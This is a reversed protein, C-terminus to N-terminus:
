VEGDEARGMHESVGHLPLFALVVTRTGELPRLPTPCGITALQLCTQRRRPSGDEPQSCCPVMMCVAANVHQGLIEPAGVLSADRPKSYLLEFPFYTMRLQVQGEGKGQLWAILWSRRGLVTDLVVRCSDRQKERGRSTM